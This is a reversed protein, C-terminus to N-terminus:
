QPRREDLVRDFLGALRGTLIRRDFAHVAELNPTVGLKGEIHLSYCSRVTRALSEPDDAEPVIGAGTRRLVEAAEGSPPVIGLIPRGVRLYEYMKGSLLSAHGPDSGVTMLLLDGETMHHITERHSCYGHFTVFGPNDPLVSGPVNKGYIEICVRNVPIEHREILRRVGEVLNRFVTVFPGYLTGTFVIRLTQSVPPFPPLGTFDAEDYGNSIIEGPIGNLRPYVACLHKRMLPSITVLGSASEIAFRELSRERDSTAIARREGPNTTWEDRFDLVLPLKHKRAARAGLVFASFPMGSVHILDPQQERIAREIVPQAFWCWVTQIDPVFVRRNFWEVLRFAKFGYLVKYLYDPDLTPARYVRINGPVEALMSADKNKRVCNPSVTVVTPTYGYENLYKVFKLTRQVGAGGLPPFYYTLVLVKRL